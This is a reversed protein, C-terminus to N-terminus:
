RKRRRASALGTLGAGLLLITAPEPVPPPEPSAPTTGTLWGAPEGIMALAPGSREFTAIIPEYYPPEGYGMLLDYRETSGIGTLSITQGEDSLTYPLPTAFLLTFEYSLLDGSSTEYLLDLQTSTGSGSQGAAGIVYSTGWIGSGTTTIAYDLLASTEADFIFYGSAIGAATPRGLNDTIQFEFSNLDWRIPAANVSHVAGVIGLVIAIGIMRYFHKM